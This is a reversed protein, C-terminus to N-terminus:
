LLFLCSGVNEHVGVCTPGRVYVPIEARRYVRLRRSSAELSLTFCRPFVGIQAHIVEGRLCTSAHVNRYVRGRSMSEYAGM